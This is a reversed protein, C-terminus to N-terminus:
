DDNDEPTPAAWIHLYMNRHVMHLTGYRTSSPVQRRILFQQLHLHVRVYEHLEM